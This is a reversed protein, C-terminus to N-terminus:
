NREVNEKKYVAATGRNQMDSELVLGEPINEMM